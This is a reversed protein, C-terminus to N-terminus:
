KFRFITYWLIHFIDYVPLQGEILCLSMKLCLSPFFIKSLSNPLQDLIKIDLLVLHPDYDTFEALVNQFDKVYRAENGWMEMEKQIAQAMPLDDEVILIKYM